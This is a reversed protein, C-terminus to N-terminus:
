HKFHRSGGLVMQVGMERAAALVEADRISGGPQWVWEIGAQAAAEIGDAFPFFADSALVAGRVDHNFQEAKAIAQRVADIRSVQGAGIGILQGKKVLVIANSKAHKVLVRALKMDEVAQEPLDICHSLDWNEPGSDLRDTEQILVGGLAGREAYTPLRHEPNWELLIRNKKQKLLELAEESYAPALLLEFFVQNLAEAWTMDVPHKTLIVGGFASVPDGALAQEWATKADANRSAGCSINHKLVATDPGDAESMLLWGADLDLVNNYSLDKGSHQKFIRGLNGQFFGKQHPNEGYRLTLLPGSDLQMEPVFGLSLWQQISRDYAATKEFGQVAMKLRFEATSGENVQLHQLVEQIQTTGSLVLVRAHNKAAARILSVGGIDIKEICAQYDSGSAVAELFPYLEVVAMDISDIGVLEAEAQDEDRQLLGGFISPHLTKVRGGFVSPFGTLSEVSTWPLGWESLAKGTGGTSILEAGMEHLQKALVAYPEKTFVSILVRKIPQSNM